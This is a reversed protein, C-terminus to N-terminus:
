GDAPIDRQRLDIGELRHNALPNAPSPGETLVVLGETLGQSQVWRRAFVNWDKPCEPEHIPHVGYSFQLEQCIAEERSITAIWVPLKFRSIMRATHGTATSVIVVAPTVHEVTQQVNHSVLDVLPVKHDRDYGTFVKHGRSEVHYLETAAAIKALMSVAEVPFKGMASEESLMVCVTTATPHTFEFRVPVLQPGANRANDHNHNHRM